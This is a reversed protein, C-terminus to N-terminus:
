SLTMRWQIGRQVVVVQPGTNAPGRKPPWKWEFGNAPNGPVTYFRWLKKGTEADYASVYGRVGLEAGGNGIIVRGDIIRPAGSITYPKSKDITNVDWNKEGTKANLSILRGDMTATFVSDGWIAVGRNVVDCCGKAAQEKDIMPDFGWLQEGTKADLAYVKNWTATVYM